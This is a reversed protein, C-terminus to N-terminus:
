LNNSQQQSSHFHEILQAARSYVDDAAFIAHCVALCNAGARILSAMNTQNIGGIVVFPSHLERRAQAILSLDAPKADPKTQSAFFRGFAVYSAGAAEARKALQLNGHCTVGIIASAPLTQRASDIDLDEQGLHVGCAGSRRAVDVNDNIILKAHYKKCLDRLRLAQHLLADNTASKDRLQLMRVGARLAAESASYLREGPLLVPDTIAYIPPLM